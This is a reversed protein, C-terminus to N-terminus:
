YFPELPEGMVVKSPNTKLLVEIAKKGGLKELRELAQPVQTFLQEPSHADTAVLDVMKTKLMIEATKKVTKGYYGLLSSLNMQIYIGQEKFRQVYAEPRKIVEENREPHALILRLFPLDKKLEPNKVAPNFFSLGLNHNIYLAPMEVLLYFSHNIRTMPWRQEALSLFSGELYYEAGPLVELGLDEAQIKQNLDKVKEEIELGTALYGSKEMIHPTAVVQDFGMQRYIRAMELGEAEDKAGDDLGFLIHSHLDIM